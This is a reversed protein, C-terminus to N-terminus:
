YNVVCRRIFRTLYQSFISFGLIIDFEQLIALIGTICFSIVLPEYIQTLIFRFVDNDKVIIDVEGLTDYFMKLRNVFHKRIRTDYRRPLYKRIAFKRM